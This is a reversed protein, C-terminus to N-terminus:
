AEILTHALDVTRKGSVNSPDQKHVLIVLLNFCILVMQARLSVDMYGTSSGYGPRARDLQHRVKDGGAGGAARQQHSTHAFPRIAGSAFDFEADFEEPYDRLSYSLSGFSQM